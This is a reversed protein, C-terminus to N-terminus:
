QSGAAHVKDEGGAAVMDIDALDAVAKLDLSIHDGGVARPHVVGVAIQHKGMVKIGVDGGIQEAHHAIVGIDDSVDIAVVFPKHAALARVLQFIKFLRNKFIREKFRRQQLRLADAFDEEGAVNVFLQQRQLLGDVGAPAIAHVHTKRREGAKFDHRAADGFAM